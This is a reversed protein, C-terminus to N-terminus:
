APYESHGNLFHNMNKIRKKKQKLSLEDHSIKKPKNKKSKKKKLKNGDNDYKDTNNNEPCYDYQTLLFDIFKLLSTKNSIIRGQEDFVLSNEPIDSDDIFDDYNRYIKPELEDETIILDKLKM